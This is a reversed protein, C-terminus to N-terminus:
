NKSSLLQYRALYQQLATFFQYRAVASCQAVEPGQGLAPWTPLRNLNALLCSNVLHSDVGAALCWAPCGSSPIDDKYM